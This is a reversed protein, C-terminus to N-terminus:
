PLADCIPATYSLDLPTHLSSYAIHSLVSPSGTRYTPSSILSPAVPTNTVFVSNWVYLPVTSSVIDPTGVAICFACCATTSAPAACFAASAASAAARAACVAACAAAVRMGTADFMTLTSM